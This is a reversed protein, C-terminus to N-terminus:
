WLLPVTTPWDLFLCKNEKLLKLTSPRMESRPHVMPLALGFRVCLQVLAVLSVDTREGAAMSIANLITDPRLEGGFKNVLLAVCKTAKPNNFLLMEITTAVLEPGTPPWAVKEPTPYNKYTRGSARRPRTAFVALCGLGRTILIADLAEHADSDIVRRMVSSKLHPATVSRPWHTLVWMVAAARNSAIALNICTIFIQRSVEKTNVLCSLKQKLAKFLTSDALALAADSGNAITGYLASRLLAINDDISPLPARNFEDLIYKLFPEGLHSCHNIIFDERKSENERSPAGAAGIPILSLVAAAHQVTDVIVPLRALFANISPIAVAPFDHRTTAATEVAAM